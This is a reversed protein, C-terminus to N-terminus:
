GFIFKSLSETLGLKGSLVNAKFTIDSTVDFVSSFDDYDFIFGSDSAYKQRSKPTKLVKFEEFFKEDEYLKVIFKEANEQSM